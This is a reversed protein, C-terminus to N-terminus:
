VPSVKATGFTKKKKFAWLDTELSEPSPLHRLEQFSLGQMQTCLNPAEVGADLVREFPESLLFCPQVAAETLQIPFFFFFFEESLIWRSPTPNSSSFSNSSSWGSTRVRQRCLDSTSRNNILTSRSPGFM